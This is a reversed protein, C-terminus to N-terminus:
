TKQLLLSVVKSMIECTSATCRIIARRSGGPTITPLGQGLRSRTSARIAERMRSGWVWSAM